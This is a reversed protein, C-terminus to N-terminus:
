SQTDQVASIEVRNQFIHIQVNAASRYDRHALANLVAERLAEESLELKDIRTFKIIYETNLHSQLYVIAERYNSVLDGDFVKQDLAKAKDIGQFLACTVTASRLFHSGHRGFLLAGANSMKGGTLAKLNRLVDLRDLEAPRGSSELFARYGEVRFDRGMQYKPNPAEDFYIM